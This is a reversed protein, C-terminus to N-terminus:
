RKRAPPPPPVSAPPGPPPGGSRARGAVRALDVGTAARIQESAAIAKQVWGDGSAGGSPVIAWEDIRVKRDAGAISNVMPMLQQLVLVERAAHGAAKYEAVLRKLADAEARGREAVSAAAARAEQQM